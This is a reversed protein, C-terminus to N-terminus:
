LASTVGGVTVTATFSHTADALLLGTAVSWTGDPNTTTIGQSVGGRYLTITAGSYASAGFIILNNSYTTAGDFINWFTNQASITRAFSITPADPATASLVSTNITIVYESGEYAM